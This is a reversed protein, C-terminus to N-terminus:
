SIDLLFLHYVVSIRARFTLSLAKLNPITLDHHTHTHTMSCLPSSDSSMLMVVAIHSPPTNFMFQRMPFNLM